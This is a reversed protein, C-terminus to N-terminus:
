GTLLVDQVRHPSPMFNPIHINFTQAFGHPSLWEVRKSHTQRVPARHPNGMRLENRDSVTAYENYSLVVRPGHNLREQDNRQIVVTMWYDLFDGFIVPAFAPSVRRKCLDSRGLNMDLHNQKTSIRTSRM